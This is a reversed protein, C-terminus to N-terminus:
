RIRDRVVRMYPAEAPFTSKIHEMAAEAELRTRFDGVKVQWYPSKFTVYVEWEPFAEAYQASKSNARARAKAPSNDDFVQVRYGVRTQAPVAEPADPASPEPVAKAVLPAVAAPQTVTINGSANVSAVVSTSDAPLVNQASLGSVAATSLLIALTKNM